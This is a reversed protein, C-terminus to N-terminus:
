VLKLFWLKQFFIGGSYNWKQLRIKKFWCVSAFVITENQFLYRVHLFQYDMGVAYVIVLVSLTRTLKYIQDLQCELKVFRKTTNQFAPLKQWSCFILPNWYEMFDTIVEIKNVKNWNPSISDSKRPNPAWSKIKSCILDVSILRLKFRCM